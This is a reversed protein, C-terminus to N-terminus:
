RGDIRSIGDVRRYYTALHERQQPRARFDIVIDVTGKKFDKHMGLVHPSANRPLSHM